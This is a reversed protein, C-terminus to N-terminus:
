LSFHLYTRIEYESGWPSSETPAACSGDPNRASPDVCFRPSWGNLARYTGRLGVRTQTRNLWRAPGLSYSADAMLQVPYTLNFDRQYDYPGWDNFKAFMWLAMSDHTIRADGGWRRVVRDSSGTSQAIGDYLHAVLRTNAGLESVIRGNAEWLDHAPPAGGFAFLQQTQSIGLGSDQTTTLHRYALDLSAAFPSDERIDNDFAWMWSAPTPDYVIVLEAGLTERNARVAFPDDLINRPSAGVVGAPIPGIIPRQWLFNPGFQFHGVDVALGTLANTQNGSGSDKLSWGTFTIASTPGGDAVLGMYAGQAYWHFRGGELTIKAKAGLADTGYIHDTKVKYSDGSPAAAYFLRDVKTSGAWIGGLSFGAIGRRGEIALTAKRTAQEPVAASTTVVSQNAFQETYMATATLPGIERRYKAVVAPNAGWWLQPGLAVKLGDFSKKGAVEMGLPVDANYTDISPGYYAERYLGFFDGEYQWHYHGARYFGELHFAPDDWSVSARYVKVREIGNLTFPAAAKNPSVDTVVRTRGRNEYFIEDIPNQAVNGLVNVSVNGVLNPKPKAEVDIYFSETHNTGKGNDTVDLRERRKGGTSYTEFSARLGSVRLREVDEAVAAGVDARYHFALSKPDIRGFAEAITDLKTSEAYPPLKFAEQLVYYATRPREEYLGREDPPGKACIGWWEENMNNSGEVFDEAYGGNPWSANTDHVELNVEQKYKWWGDSWQFIFGGIANGVRGKGASQEYIERWQALLYRAQTLDDERNQKADFADAGFETFMVPIGLKDHVVQFLDRASKGRYVNAGLVDLGKCESAILDIYQLDGNAISVLHSPDHAKTTRVIDGFLSYLYRARAKDREGAPLAEIESSGWSLGYNNENGFLWMLLGPTAKYSDVLALVDSKLVERTHPDSYDVERQWVGDITYGYRGVTPNLVTYIGYEEYIYQIWKSPVGAYQRIVNVGMRQLLPMERALAERIMEDPQSWLSYSYNKGVPVYDWNMGFVMLDTGGIRLRLGSADSVVRATTPSSGLPAGGDAVAATASTAEPATSPSAGADSPAGADASSGADVVTPALAAASAAQPTGASAAEQARIPATFGLLAALTVAGFAVRSLRM